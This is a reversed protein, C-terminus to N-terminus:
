QTVEKKDETAHVEESEDDYPNLDLVRPADRRMRRRIVRPEPAESARSSTEEEARPGRGQYYHNHIETKTGSSDDDRGALNGLLAAAGGRRGFLGLALAIVGLLPLLFPPM